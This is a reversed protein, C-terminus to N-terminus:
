KLKNVKELREIAETYTIRVFDSDFVHTLDNILGKKVRQDFFELDKKNNELVYKICFKLYSEALEM